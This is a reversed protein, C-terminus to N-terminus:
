IASIQRTIKKFVYDETEQKPFEETFVKEETADTSTYSTIDIISNEKEYIDDSTRIMKPEDEVCLRTIDLYIRTKGEEKEEIIYADFSRNESQIGDDLHLSGNIYIFDKDKHASFEVLELETVKSGKMPYATDRIEKCYSLLNLIRKQMKKNAIGIYRYNQEFLIRMDKENMNNM